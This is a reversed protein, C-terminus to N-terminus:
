DAGKLRQAAKAPDVIQIFMQTGMEFGAVSTLRPFADIYFHGRSTSPFSVFSWNYSPAISSMASAASQLLAALETVEDDNLQDPEAVHRKPVIWQQYLMTSAEPAFWVFRSSERIVNPRAAANCLICGRASEFAATERAIRSPLEPTGLLQSHIHDLSAGSLPGNNKFLSIYAVGSRSRMARYRSLYLRVLGAPDGVDQFRADHDAADVIVEHYASAPYKNPFARAIWAGNKEIREVDPPTMAENGPCFPCTEVSEHAFANPRLSREPAFLVPDGTIPNHRVSTM